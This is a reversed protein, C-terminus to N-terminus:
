KAHLLVLILVLLAAYCTALRVRFSLTSEDLDSLGFFGSSNASMMAAGEPTSEVHSLVARHAPTFSVYSRHAPTSHVNLRNAPTTQVDNNLSGTATQVTKALPTSANEEVCEANCNELDETKKFKSEHDPETGPRVQSSKTNSSTPSTIPSISLAPIFYHGSADLNDLVSPNLEAEKDTNSSLKTKLHFELQSRSFLKIFFAIGSGIVFNYFTTCIITSM